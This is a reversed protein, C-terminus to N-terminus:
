AVLMAFFVAPVVSRRWLSLALGAVAAVAMGVTTEGLFTGADAVPDLGSTREGAFWRVADNDWPDVSSRLPHTILWGVTLVVAVIAAWCVAVLIVTRLHHRADSM